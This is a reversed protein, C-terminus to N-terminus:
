RSRSASLFDVYSEKEFTINPVSKSNRCVSFLFYGNTISNHRRFGFVVFFCFVHNKHMNAIEHVYIYIYIYM